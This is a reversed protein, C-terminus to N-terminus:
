SWCHCQSKDIEMWDQAWKAPFWQKPNGRPNESFNGFRCQLWLNKRDLGVDTWRGEWLFPHVDHNPAEGEWNWRGKRKKKKKKKMWIDNNIAKGCPHPKICRSSLINKAAEGKWQSEDRGSDEGEMRFAVKRKKVTKDGWKMGKTRMSSGQHSLYFIKKKEHHLWYMEAKVSSTM